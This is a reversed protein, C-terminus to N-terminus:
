DENDLHENTKQRNGFNNNKSDKASVIKVNNPSVTQVWGPKKIESLKYVGAKLSTFSYKGQADTVTTVTTNGPGKLKITWGALGSENADKKKNGNKDEFKMGSISGLKFNGFDKKKAIQGAALTIDYKDSSANASPYTSIWGAKQVERVHYTGATLGVFRYNGHNDTVTSPEGNDLSGNNNTDLYITWGGLGVEWKKEFPKGDGDWDEYKSGRIEGLKPNKTNTVVCVTPEGAAVEVAACDNNTMTWGAVAGETVHYTGQTLNSFTQSTGSGGANTGTTTITFNGIGNDGTFSFTGNGGITHKEIILSGTTPCTKNWVVIYADSSLAELAVPTANAEATAADAFSILSSSYGDLYYKGPRCQAKSAVVQSTDDTVEATTYDYPGTMAATDAGYLDAAGGHNNGLVYSGTGAGINSASWTATMPFQYNNASLATAQIGDLYKLIHVKYTAAPPCVKNWVIVFKDSQLNTFSAFSPDTSSANAFAEDLTAGSSYGELAYTNSGTCSTPLNEFTSYNSGVPMDATTAQYPTPNNFGTASLAYDGEGGPFVAHMPFSASNTNDATAPVGNVYKVITVKASTPAPTPDFDFTTTQSATGLVFKDLNETYGDAYPEGVRLGLWSDTVRIRIGPYDALLDNWTRPTTGSVGAMGAHPGTVPTPWTTGSYTYKANGGQIADWAKWTDQTVAGNQNPVFVLRRQWTDTGNFDVNFNLYASRTASGGNGASPNYTSFMLTTIDGLKTGSFQYTALNRRQTGTVSIQASGTGLPPTAPGTVMSGLSNDITDNEDNYFFWKTPNSSVDALNAALDSQHVVVTSNSPGAPTPDSTLTLGDILFGKGANAPTASGRAQFIATKVIRPSQEASSESDYRYYNEWSTGIHVLNNDIWVKVVDNSPGDFTDLSLTIRHATTRALGSAIKTEVFNAPNGTGQVDDFFVDIGNVGDEFRLYSMRSGDGRDPSVSIHLGPQQATQSSALYFDMVFHRQLTGPSFTGNTAGTEGVADTLPKAFAWDGFSGSTSGDSIRLSKTGFSVPAAPITTNDSVAVDYPGTFVWGDQANISGTTYSEFTIPGVSSASAVFPLVLFAASVVVSSVGLIYRRM